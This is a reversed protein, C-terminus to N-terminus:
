EELPRALIQLRDSRRRRGGRVARRGLVEDVAQLSALRHLAVTRGLDGAVCLLDQLGSQSGRVAALEDRERYRTVPSSGVGPLAAHGRRARAFVGTTIVRRGRM